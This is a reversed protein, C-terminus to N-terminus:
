EGKSLEGMLKALWERKETAWAQWAKTDRVTVDDPGTGLISPDYAKYDAVQETRGFKKGDKGVGSYHVSGPKGGVQIYVLVEEDKAPEEGIQDLADWVDGKKTVRLFLPARACMLTQGVAPGDLFKLM